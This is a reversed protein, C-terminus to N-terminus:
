AVEMPIVDRLGPHAADKDSIIAQGKAIPWAIALEPDFLNVFTYATEPSWHENVLYTYTINQELTQYGNAVGRPVFVAKGPTIELTLTKGFSPGKRLDVWAGFIRGNAISIFKEWPEAHLGRTVGAEANFSFNNQVIEFHPLGLAEMKERQYNEKFWGRNDGHVALDIEYFGPIVTERVALNTAADTM